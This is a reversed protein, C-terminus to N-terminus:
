KKTAGYYKRFVRIPRIFYYFFALYQPLSLVTRDKETLKMGGSFRVLGIFSRLKDRWRKRTSIHFLTREVEGPEVVLNPSILQREVKAALSLVVSDTNVEYRIMEPLDVGLLNEALLLGLLLLRKSGLRNAMKIINQWDLNPHARVLEAVDCIRSLRYWGEKTGNLCLIFLLTDPTFTNAKKGLLSYQEVQDWLDSSNHFCSLHNPVIDRHLDISHQGTLNTQPSTLHTEWPVQVTLEYGQSVLLDVTRSFDSARVLFDLDSIQRLSLDGYIDALIPGKFSVAQIGYSELQESIELLEKMLVMNHLSTRRCQNQLEKIAPHALTEPAYKALNHHLLPRVRHQKAISTLESFNLNKKLLSRVREVTDKTLHTRACCLVIELEPSIKQSM